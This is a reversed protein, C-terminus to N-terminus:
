FPPFFSHWVCMTWCAELTELGLALQADDNSSECDLLWDLAKRHCCDICSVVLMGRGRQVPFPADCLPQKFISLPITSPTLVRLVTNFASGVGNITLGREGSDRVVANRV